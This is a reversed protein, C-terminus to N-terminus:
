PYVICINTLRSVHLTRMIQRIAVFKKLLRYTSNVLVVNEEQVQKSTMESPYFLVNILPLYFLFNSKRRSNRDIEDM